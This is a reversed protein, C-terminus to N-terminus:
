FQFGASILLTRLQTDRDNQTRSRGMIRRWDTAYEVKIPFGFKLILGLGPTVRWAPFPAGNDVVRFGGPSGPDPVTTTRDEPRAHIQAYVQGGDVFIEGWLTNGIWPLPFRYELSAMALVQGGLPTLQTEYVGPNGPVPIKNGSSDRKPLEQVPGLFGPEVGRVSFPGGGFFRETLPLDRATNATPRAIGLRVNATVVGAEARFGVAWNWQHRLDLKVFSSNTSTGLGQPAVELYGNFFTGSTPDAARDRRDITVAGNLSSIVSREPSRALTFLENSDFLPKGDADQASAVEAREFRYGLQVTQAQTIRWELSGLFRRRRAFFGANAEELYAGELRLRTRAHLLGDLAGPMFWPDTYGISYSDLSRNVDGTPFAERLAKSRLTQDGARIGLDLSRGMGGLNARQIGGLVRYGQARDYGFGSSFTWPNREETRLELDGRGWGRDEQGPVDGLSQLDTRGFAGLNSLGSLGSDLAGPDLAPAPPEPFERLVARARTRDLGRAVIRRLPELAQAPVDIYAVEEDADERFRLEPRPSGLGALRQRLDALVLGLDGKVFPISRGTVLRYRHGTGPVAEESLRGVVGQLHARDAPWTTVTGAAGKRLPRDALWLALAPALRGPDLGPQAAVDMQLAKLHRAKGERIEFTLDMRGPSSPSLRGRVRVDVFGKALYLNRVRDELNRVLEPTATNLRFLRQLGARTAKRLDEEPLEHNGQFQIAELGFSPGPDIHYIVEVREPADAPGKTVRREHRVKVDQNGRERFYRVLHREGETLLSPSWQAARTFLVLEALQRQGGLLGGIRAGESRLDVKPGPQAELRVLGTAADFSLRAAGEYRRDKLFRERLGAVASRELSPSWLTTGPKLGAAKLLAVRSYSTPQVALEVQRILAPPGPDVQIQLGDGTDSRTLKVSALPYGADQLRLQAGSQWEQLRLNGVRIGLRLGPFLDKVQKAPLPSHVGLSGLPRLPVLRLLLRGDELRRGEVSQFRDLRTVAEVTRALAADDLAEGARFGAAARALRQDDEDGGELRLERPPSLPGPAQTWAPGLAGPILLLSALPRNM